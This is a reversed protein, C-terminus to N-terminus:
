GAQGMLPSTIFSVLQLEMSMNTTDKDQISLHGIGAHLVVNVCACFHACCLENTVYQAPDRVIAGNM